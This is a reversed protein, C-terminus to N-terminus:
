AAPKGSDATVEDIVAHIFKMKELV